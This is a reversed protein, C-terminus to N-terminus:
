AESYVENLRRRNDVSNDLKLTVERSFEILIVGTESAVSVKAKIPDPIIEPM